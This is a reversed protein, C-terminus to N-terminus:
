DEKRYEFKIYWREKRSNTLQLLYTHKDAIGTTKRLDLQMFNEGYKVACAADALTIEKRQADSLDFLKVQVVTDNIEHLYNYYLTGTCLTHSADEHPKLKVYWTATNTNKVQNNAPLIRFSWTESGAVPMFNNQALVRWAYLKGTDLAPMSFPYQFSTYAINRQTLLPINQQVAENATQLSRVEVLVWDYLLNNFLTYPAPPLWTFLPRNQEVADSDAPMVLQPPSIPEVEITTCEESLHEVADNNLGIVTFCVTYQGVPLFGDPNASYGTGANYNVPMVDAAQIQKIGKPLQITKSNGTLVRRNGALETLAVQVQVNITTNSTNVLSLNWLQNKVVIGAPPLQLSIMVQARTVTITIFLLAPLFLKTMNM